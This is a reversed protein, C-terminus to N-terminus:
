AAAGDGIASLVAFAPRFVPAYDRKLIRRWTEQLENGPADDVRDPDLM